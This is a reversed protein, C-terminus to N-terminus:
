KRFPSSPREAHRRRGSPPRGTLPRGAGERAARALPTGDQAPQLRRDGDRSGLRHRRPRRLRRDPHRDRGPWVMMLVGLVILAIGVAADHSRTEHRVASPRWRACSAGRWSPSAPSSPSWRSRRAPGPSCSSAASSPSWPAPSTRAGPGRGPGDDRTAGRGHVAPVARHALRPRRPQRLRPQARRHRLRRRDRGFALLWGWNHAAWGARRDLLHAERRSVAVEEQVVIRDDDRDTEAGGRTDEMRGRGRQGHALAMTSRSPRHLHYGSAGGLAGRAAGCAAWRVVCWAVRRGAWQVGWTSVLMKRLVCRNRVRAM